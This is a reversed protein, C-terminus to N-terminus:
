DTSVPEPTRALAARMTHWPLTACKIRIPFERVGAFVGLKGLEAPVAAETGDETLMRHFRAFLAEAEAETKGQISATMLSAAARSIACGTGQFGVDRIVGDAVSLYLTIQDGCLPNHGAATRNAGPLARFNRPKRNHDLIVEQYLERLASV